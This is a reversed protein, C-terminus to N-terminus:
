ERITAVKRVTECSVCWPIFAADTTLKLSLQSNGCQRVRGSRDCAMVYLIAAVLFSIM